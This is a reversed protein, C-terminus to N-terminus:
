SADPRDEDDLEAAALIVPLRWAAGLRLAPPPFGEDSQEDEVVPDSEDDGARAPEHARRDDRNMKM